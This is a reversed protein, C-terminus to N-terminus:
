GFTCASAAWSSHLHENQTMLLAGVKGTGVRRKFIDFLRKAEMRGAPRVISLIEDASPMDTRQSAADVALQVQVAFLPFHQGTLGCLSCQLSQM